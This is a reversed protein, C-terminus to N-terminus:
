YLYWDTTDHNNIGVIGFKPDYFLTDADFTRSYHVNDYLKNNFSRKSGWYNFEYTSFYFKKAFITIDLEADAFEGKSYNDIKILNNISADSYKHIFFQNCYHDDQCDPDPNHSIGCNYGSDVGQALFYISNNNSDVLHITDNTGNYPVSRKYLDLLNLYSTRGGCPGGPPKCSQLYFALSLIIIAIFVKM